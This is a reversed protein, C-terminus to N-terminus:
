KSPAVIIQVEAVDSEGAGDHVKWRLRDTGRFAANPTFVLDNGTGSLIGNRPRSLISISYPGPGGDPDIYTLQIEVATGASARITTNEVVPPRNPWSTTPPVRGSSSSQRPMAVSGADRHRLYLAVENGLSDPKRFVQDGGALKVGRQDVTRGSVIDLWRLDYSGARAEKLGLSSMALSSYLIYSGAAPAAM